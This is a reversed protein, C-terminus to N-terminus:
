VPGSASSFGTALFFGKESFDGAFSVDCPFCHECQADGDCRDCERLFSMEIAHKSTLPILGLRHSIFEDNLVM